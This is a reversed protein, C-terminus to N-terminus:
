ELNRVSHISLFALHGRNWLFISPSSVARGPRSFLRLYGGQRILIRRTLYLGLGLGDQERVAAGRYFRSFVQAQEEGPIGPGSDTVRIRCFLEYCEASLTVRGGPPTYKLANDVVNFLAESTWKADFRASGTCPQVTLSIGKEAAAAAGQAAADELLPQIPHLAPSLTLVGADLRSSKVLAEMLFALKEAQGRLARLQEQQAPSLPSEELLSGYLLLNAIPTRTQHSIDAILAAIQRREEDLARASAASGNLFRALRAELASPISEDFSEELFSNDIAQSLMRDLRDAQRRARRWHYLGFLVGGAATLLALLLLPVAMAGGGVCLGRRIGDPHPRRHAQGAPPERGSVPRERGCIGRRGLGAGAPAGPTSDAGPAGGAPPVGNRTYTMEQFDFTFPPLELVTRRSHARRLLNNVRARLVALSFPKTVYDDAGLELGTVQDLELDNATLILVPLASRARLRRLLELGSGDPLNLDLVVLSFPREELAREGQDLTSTQIFRRGEGELGLRIGQSLARDDEVILIDDM